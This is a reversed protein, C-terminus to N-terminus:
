ASCREPSPSWCSNRAALRWCRFSFSFQWGGRRRNPGCTASRTSSRRRAAKASKLKRPRKRRVRLEGCRSSPSRSRLRPCPPAEAMLRSTSFPDLFRGALGASVAFGLIMMIWVIPGAVPARPCAEKALLALLSTGAAGVGLGIALYAILAAFIGPGTATAMLVTAAAAGAGGLALVAMGGIIWPTRRGGTDSGYGWRPRLIQVAYHIGVLFGPLVAPLALEVVMIRNLTSLSFVAIAGLSMQVLGLRLVGLWSLRSAPNM